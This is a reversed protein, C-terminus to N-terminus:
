APIADDPGRWMETTAEGVKRMIANQTTDSQGLHDLNMQSGNLTFLSAAHVKISWNLRVVFPIAQTSMDSAQRTNLRPILSTNNPTSPVSYPINARTMRKSRFDSTADCAVHSDYYLM